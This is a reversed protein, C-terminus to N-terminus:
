MSFFDVTRWSSDCTLQILISLEFKILSVAVIHNDVPPYFLPSDSSAILFQEAEPLFIRFTLSILLSAFLEASIEVLSTKDESGDSMPLKVGLDSSVSHIFSLNLLIDCELDFCLDLFKLVLLLEELSEDLFEFLLM